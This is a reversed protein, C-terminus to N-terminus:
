PVTLSGDGNVTVGFAQSVAEFPEAQIATAAIHVTLSYGEPATGLSSISNILNETAADKALPSTYYYFGDSGLTWGNAGLSLSYDTGNVPQRSLVTGDDKVFIVVFTARVYATVDSTNRIKVDSKVSGTFKEEVSCSVFVPEFSNELEDTGAFLYSLTGAATASIAIIILLSIIVIRKKNM